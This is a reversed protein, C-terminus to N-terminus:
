FDNPNNKNVVKGERSGTEVDLQYEMADAKRGGEENVRNIRSVLEDNGGGPEAYLAQPVITDTAAQGDRLQAQQHDIRERFEEARFDTAGSVQSEGREYAKGVRNEGTQGNAQGDMIAQREIGQAHLRYNGAVTGEQEVLGQVGAHNAPVAFGQVSTAQVEDMAQRLSQQQNSTLEVGNNLNSLIAQAQANGENSALQNWIQQALNQKFVVSSSEMESLSLRVAETERQAAGWRESAQVAETRSLSAQDTNNDAVTIGSEARIDKIAEAARNLTDVLGSTKIYEMGQQLQEQTIDRSDADVGAAGSLFKGLGIGMNAKFGTSAQDIANLSNQVKEAYNKQESAAIGRTVGESSGAGESIRVADSIQKLQSQTNEMATSLSSAFDRAASREASVAQSLDNQLNRSYAESLGGQIMLSSNPQTVYVETTGGAGTALTEKWGSMGVTTATGMDLAPSLTQQYMQQNQFGFNGAQINGASAEDAARSASTEYSQTAKGALGAMMAGSQSVLLWAIMPISVTLYGAIVSYHYMVDRIASNTLLTTDGVVNGSGHAYYAVVFNLIVFLPSWLNVWAVAKIYGMAVKGAVPLMLMLGIVPFVCYIFLEFVHQMMPLMEKALIGMAAMTTERESKAKELTYSNVLADNSVASGHSGASDKLANVMVNQLLKDAQSSASQGMYIAAQEANAAYAAIIQGDTLNGTKDYSVYISKSMAQTIGNLQARVAPLLDQSWVNNCSDFRNSGRPYEHYSGFSSYTSLFSAIDTTQALDGWSYRGLAIDYFICNDYFRNIETALDPDQLSADALQEVLSLGIGLGGTTYAAGDPLSFVADFSETLYKKATSGISAVAALGLPVNDVVYGTLASQTQDKINVTVKPVLFGMYIVIMVLLWQLNRIKGDMTIASSLLAGIFGLLAATALAMRYDDSGFILVIGNFVMRYLDGGGYTYIEFIM